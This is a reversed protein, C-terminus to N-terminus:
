RCSTAAGLAAASLAVQAPTTAALLPAGAVMAAAGVSGRLFQRLTENTM